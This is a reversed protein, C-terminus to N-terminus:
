GYSGEGFALGAILAARHIPIALRATLYQLRAEATSYVGIDAPVSM